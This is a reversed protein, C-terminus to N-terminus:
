GGLFYVDLTAIAIIGHSNECVYVMSALLVIVFRDYLLQMPLLASTSSFQLVHYFLIKPDSGYWGWSLQYRIYESTGLLLAHM